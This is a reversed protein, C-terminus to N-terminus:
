APPLLVLQNAVQEAVASHPLPSSHQHPMQVDVQAVSHAEPGAVEVQSVGGALQASGDLFVAQAM